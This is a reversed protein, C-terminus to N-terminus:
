EEGKWRRNQRRSACIPPRNIKPPGRREYIQVNEVLWDSVPEGLLEDFYNNPVVREPVYAGTSHIVANRM